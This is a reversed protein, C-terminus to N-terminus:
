ESLCCQEGANAIIKQEGDVPAAYAAKLDVLLFCSNALYAEDTVLLGEPDLGADQFSDFAQVRELTYTLDTEGREKTETELSDGKGTQITYKRYAPHSGGIKPWVIEEEPQPVATEFEVTDTSEAAASAGAAIQEGQELDTGGTGLLILMTTLVAAIWGKGGM